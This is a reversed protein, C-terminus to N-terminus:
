FRTAAVDSRRCQEGFTSNRCYSNAVSILAADAKLRNEFSDEPNPSAGASHYAIDHIVCCAEWPPQSGHAKAFEPFQDSVVMWASSLGGSCGDSTFKGPMGGSDARARALARHAPLEFQRQIDFDGPEGATAPTLSLCLALAFAM